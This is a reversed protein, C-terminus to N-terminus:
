IFYHFLYRYLLVLEGLLVTVHYNKLLRFLGDDVFDKKGRPYGKRRENAFFVIVISTAFIGIYTINILM